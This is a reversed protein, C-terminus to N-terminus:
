VQMRSDIEGLIFRGEDEQRDIRDKVGGKSKM